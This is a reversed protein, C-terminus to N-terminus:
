GNSVELAKPDLKLVADVVAKSFADGVSRDTFELIHVYQAKGDKTVVAGDKVQPKAPLAAWTSGNKRHVAVDRVRLRIDPINITAFGRLTNKAFPKFNECEISFAM